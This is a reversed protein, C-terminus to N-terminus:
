KVEKILDYCVMNLYMDECICGYLVLVVIGVEEVCKVVCLINEYGNLFGLCIKFIVFVDVVVVVEDLIWVVLDEDKLFVFGVLKNCVKKVFCGMNIDM